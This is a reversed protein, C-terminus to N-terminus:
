VDTNRILRMKIRIRPDAESIISGPGTKSGSGDQFQVLELKQRRIKETFPKFRM